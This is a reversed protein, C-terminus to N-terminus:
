KRSNYNIIVYSIPSASGNTISLKVPEGKIANGVLRIGGNGFSSVAFPAAGSSASATIKAAKGSYPIILFVQEGWRSSLSFTATKGEKLTKEYLSYNFRSDAGNLHDATTTQYRNVNESNVLISNLKFGAVRESARCEISRDFGLEDMPTWRPDKSLKAIANKYAAEGGHPLSAVIDALANLEQDQADAAMSGLITIIIFFLRRM